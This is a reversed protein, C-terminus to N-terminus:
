LAERKFSHEHDSKRSSVLVVGWIGLILSTPIFIVSKLLQPWAFLFVVNIFSIILQMIFLVPDNTVPLYQLFQEIGFLIVWLYLIPSLVFYYCFIGWTLQKIRSSLEPQRQKFLAIIIMFSIVCNLTCTITRFFSDDTMYCAVSFLAELILLSFLITHVGDINNNPSLPYSKEAVQALDPQKPHSYLVRTTQVVRTQCIRDHLTRRQSDFIAMLYGLFLFFASITEGICRVLAIGYTLHRHKVPIVQLSFLMKGPTAQYHTLFLTTYLAPTCWKIMFIMYYNLHSAVIIMSDPHPNPLPIIAVLMSCIAWDIMKAFFRNWFGGYILGHTEKISTHYPNKAENISNRQM